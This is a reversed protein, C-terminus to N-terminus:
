GYRQVEVLLDDILVGNIKTGEIGDYEITIRGVTGDETMFDVYTAGDTATVVFKTGAELKGDRYKGDPQLFKVSFETKVCMLGDKYADFENSIDYDGVREIESESYIYNATCEITGFNQLTVHGCILGNEIGEFGFRGKVVDRGSSGIPIIHTEFLLESGTEAVIVYFDGGLRKTIFPNIGGTQPLELHTSPICYSKCEDGDVVYFYYSYFTWAGPENEDIEEDPESTMCIIELEGDGDLDFLIPTDLLLMPESQENLTPEVPEPFQKSDITISPTPEPTPEFIEQSETPAPTPVDDPVVTPTCSFAFFASLILAFVAALNKNTKM